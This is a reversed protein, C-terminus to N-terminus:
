TLLSFLYIGGFAIVSCGIIILIAFGIPKIMNELKWWWKRKYIKINTQSQSFSVRERNNRKFIIFLLIFLASGMIWEKM